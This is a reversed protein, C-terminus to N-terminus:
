FFAVHSCVLPALGFIAAPKHPDVSFFHAGRFNFSRRSNRRLSIPFRGVSLGALFPGPGPLRHWGRSPVWMVAVHGCLWMDVFVTPGHSAARRDMGRYQRWEMGRHGGMGRGECCLIAGWQMTAGRGGQGGQGAAAVYKKRIQPRRSTCPQARGCPHAAIPHLCWGSPCHGSRSDTINKMPLISVRFAQVRYVLAPSPSRDPTTSIGRPPSPMVKHVM